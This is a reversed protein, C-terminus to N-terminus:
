KSIIWSPPEDVGTLFFQDEGIGMMERFRDVAAINRPWRRSYDHGALIGGQRVKPVRFGFDTIRIVLGPPNRSSKVVSPVSSVSLPNPIKSSPNQNM